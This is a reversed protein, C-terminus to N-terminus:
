RCPKLNKLYSVAQRLTKVPVVTVNGRASLAPQLNEKVDPVLFYKAGANRAAIIKQKAGGIAGVNGAYDITGTGAVKCGHTLNDRELREIIGLSFMMGASPGGIDGPKISIKVPFVIQDQVYIGVLATKGHKSPVGNTSPVTKVSVHLTHGNRLVTMHAVQGPKLKKVVPAVDTARHMRHGNVVEIVDGAKLVSSAPTNPMVFEVQPGATSFHLKYGRAVELAAAEAEHISDNMLQVNLQLYQNESLSGSVSQAPELDASPDLMGYIKELLHNVKYLSVDTMLLSKAGRPPPYGKVSIMPSVARAQGPLLMYDNAPILELVGAILAIVLLVTILDSFRFFRRRKTEAAAPQEDPLTM